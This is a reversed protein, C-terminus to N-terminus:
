LLEQLTKIREDTRIELCWLVTEEEKTKSKERQKSIDELKGKLEEIEDKVKQKPIYNKDVYDLDLQKSYEENEKAYKNITTQQKDLENHMYENEKLVKKYDSLIHDIAYYVNSYVYRQGEGFQTPKIDKGTETNYQRLGDIFEELIQIDEEITAVNTDAANSNEKIDKDGYLEKSLKEPTTGKLVNDMTNDIESLDMKFINEKDM